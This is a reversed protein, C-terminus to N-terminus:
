NIFKLNKNIEWIINKEDEFNHFFTERIIKGEKLVKQNGKEYFGLLTITQQPYMLSYWLIVLFGTSLYKISIQNNIILYKKLIEYVKNDQIKQLYNFILELDILNLDLNELGVLNKKEFNQTENILYVNSIVNTKEVSPIYDNLGFIFNEENTRFFIDLKNLNLNKVIHFYKLKILAFIDSKLAYSEILKSNSEIFKPNNALIIIDM